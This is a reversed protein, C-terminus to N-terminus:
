LNYDFDSHETSVVKTELIFVGSAFCISRGLVKENFHEATPQDFHEAIYIFWFADVVQYHWLLFEIYKRIESADMDEFIEFGM